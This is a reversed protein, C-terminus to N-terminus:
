RQLTSVVVKVFLFISLIEEPKFKKTEGKDKVEINQIGGTRSVCDSSEYESKVLYDDEGDDNDDDELYDDGGDDNFEDDEDNDENGNGNGTLLICGESAGKDGCM